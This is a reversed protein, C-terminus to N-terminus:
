VQTLKDAIQPASLLASAIETLGAGCLLYLPLKTDTRLAEKIIFNAAESKAPTSDNPLATDSGAIVPINSKLAMVKLLARAKNAANQAQTKSPDFGDGVKLHSGIIARIEVSPSLLLHTLQFLGDPDGSFDNDVIVRMRPTVTAGGMVKQSFCSCTWGFLLLFILCTAKLMLAINIKLPKGMYLFFIESVVLM